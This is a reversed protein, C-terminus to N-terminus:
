GGKFQSSINLDKSISSEIKVCKKISSTINLDQSVTVRSFIKLIRNYQGIVDLSGIGSLIAKGIATIM